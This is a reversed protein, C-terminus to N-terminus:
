KTHNIRIIDSYSYILMRFGSSIVDLVVFSQISYPSYPVFYQRNYYNRVNIVHLSWQVKWPRKSRVRFATVLRLCTWLRETLIIINLHSFVPLYPPDSNKADQALYYSTYQWTSAVVDTKRGINLRDSETLNFDSKWPM